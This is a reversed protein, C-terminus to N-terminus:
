LALRLLGIKSLMEPLIKVSPQPVMFGGDDAPPNNTLHEANEVLARHIGLLEAHLASAVAIRDASRLADDRRRNLHANFLAGLV